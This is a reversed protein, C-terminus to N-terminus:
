ESEPLKILCITKPVTKEIVLVDTAQTNRKKSMRHQYGTIRETEITQWTDRILPLAARFWADNRLVTTMCIEDLYWYITKFLIHTEAVEAKTYEIWTTYNAVPEDLPMYRYLPINSLGDRPVFNLIVGRMREEDDEEVFAQEGEYEKFRTEVFDCADLECCQMQIQTQVWYAESPIGDMDRNYINKIEVLRGYLPSEENIVIGDPSAGLFPHETHVICGYHGIKAGTMHEYVLVTLPEFKVGWHLSGETSIWKSEAGGMELPKCKEFILRNRQAESGLAQYLNSATLMNYRHQYWEPTRQSPNTADKESVVALKRKITQKVLDADMHFEETHINGKHHPITRMTYQIDKYSMFWSQCYHQVFSQMDEYDGEQCIGIDIFNQFLIHAIDDVLEEHFETKSIKLIYDKLYEELLEYIATELEEQEAETLKDYFPEEIEDEEEENIEEEEKIEEIIEDENTQISKDCSM